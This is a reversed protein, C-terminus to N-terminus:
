GPGRGLRRVDKPCALVALIALVNINLRWFEAGTILIVYGIWQRRSVAIHSNSAVSSSIKRWFLLGPEVWYKSIIFWGSHADGNTM